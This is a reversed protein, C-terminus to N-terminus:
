RNARGGRYGVPPTGEQDGALAAKLKSERGWGGVGGRECLAREPPFTFNKDSVSVVRKFLQTTVGNERLRTLINTVGM